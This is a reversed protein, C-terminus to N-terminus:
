QSVRSWELLRWHGEPAQSLYVDSAVWEGSPRRVNVLELTSPDVTFVPESLTTTVRLYIVGIAADGFEAEVSDFDLGGGLVVLGAEDARQVGESMGALYEGAMGFALDLETLGANAKIWDEWRFFDAFWREVDEPGDITLDVEPMPAGILALLEAPVESEPVTTTSPSTTPAVITTTTSSTTTTAATTVVSTTTTQGVEAETPACAVVVVCVCAAVLRRM